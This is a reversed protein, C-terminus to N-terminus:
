RHFVGFDNLVAGFDCSIGFGGNGTGSNAAAFLGPDEGFQVSSNLTVNIGDGGNSNIANNSIDAQAESM